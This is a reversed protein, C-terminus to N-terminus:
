EAAVVQGGPRYSKLEAVISGVAFEASAKVLHHSHADALWLVTDRRTSFKGDFATRIRIRFTPFEGAPTRVKERADIDAILNFQKRGSVVPIEFKRGVELEQLRLWVFAGTLDLAGEPVELVTEKRSKGRRQEVVTVKRGSADFRASDIHYDGVEFAQLDSGRSLRRRADWFSVLHERVDLLSAAGSTRAQLIVPWIDGEPNGVRIRGEGTPVNLYSVTFVTEEGPSFGQARAPSAAMALAVLFSAHALILQPTTLLRLEGHM